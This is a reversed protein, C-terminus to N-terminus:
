KKYVGEYLGGIKGRQTKFVAPVNRFITRYRKIKLIKQELQKLQLQKFPNTTVTNKFTERAWDRCVIIKTRRNERRRFM